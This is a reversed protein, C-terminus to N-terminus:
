GSTGRLPLMSETWSSRGWSQGRFPKENRGYSPPTSNAPLPATALRVSVALSPFEWGGAAPPAPRKRFSWGVAYQSILQACGTARRLRTAEFRKHRNMEDSHMQSESEANSTILNCVM